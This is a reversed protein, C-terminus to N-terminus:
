RRAIIEAIWHASRDRYHDGSERERGRSAQPLKLRDRSEEGGELLISKRKAGNSARREGRTKIERM